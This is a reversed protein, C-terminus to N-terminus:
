LNFLESLFKRRNGDTIQCEDLADIIIFYKAYRNIAAYLEKSIKDFSLRTQRDRYYKYLRIVSDSINPLGLFLQKLLNALLNVPKQENKRRFNCYLYIIDIETAHRYKTSLYDVVVSTMIIKGAEPM